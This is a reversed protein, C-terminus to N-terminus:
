LRADRGHPVPCDCRAGGEVSSQTVHKRASDPAKVEPAAFIGGEVSSKTGRGPHSTTTTTAQVPAGFIGGEQTGTVQLWRPQNPNVDNAVVPGTGFIGACRRPPRHSCTQVTGLINSARARAAGGQISSDTFHRPM